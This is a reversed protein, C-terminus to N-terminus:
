PWDVRHQAIWRDSVAVLEDAGVPRKTLVAVMVVIVAVLSVGIGTWLM